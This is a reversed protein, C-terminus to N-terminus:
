GVLNQLEKKKKTTEEKLVNEIAKVEVLKKTEFIQKARLEADRGWVTANNTNNTNTNNNLRLSSTRM